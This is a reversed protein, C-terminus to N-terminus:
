NEPVVVFEMSYKKHNQPNTVIIRTTGLPMVKTKNWMILTKSTPALSCNGVVKKLLINISLGCDVQFKIPKDDILMESFIKKPLRSNDSPEVACINASEVAIGAIYNIDENDDVSSSPFDKSSINNVRKGSKKCKSAFHNRGGRQCCKHDWVPCKGKDFPHTGGCFLCSKQSKDNKDNKGNKLKGNPPRSPERNEKVRNVDESIKTGSIIKMQLASTESRRCIDICKNLM